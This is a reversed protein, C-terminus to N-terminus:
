TDCRVAGRRVEKQLKYVKPWYHGHYYRKEAGQVTQNFLPGRRLALLELPPEDTRSLQTDADKPVFVMTNRDTNPPFVAARMAETAHQLWKLGRKELQLKIDAPSRNAIHGHGPQGPIAVSIVLLKKTAAALWDFLKHHYSRPIHEIVELTYVLDFKGIRQAALQEASATALDIAVLRPLGSSRVIGPDELPLKVPKPEMMVIDDLELDSMALFSAYLGLGGGLEAASRVGSAKSLAIIGRAMRNDFMMGYTKLHACATWAGGASGALSGAGCNPSCAAQTPM